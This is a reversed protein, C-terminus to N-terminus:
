WVKWAPKTKQLSFKVIVTVRFFDGDGPEPFVWMNEFYRQYVEENGVAKRYDDNEMEVFQVYNNAKAYMETLRDKSAISEEAIKRFYDSGSTVLIQFDGYLRQSEKEMIGSDLAAIKDDIEKIVATISNKPSKEDLKINPTYVQMLSQLAEINSKYEANLKEIERLTQNIRENGSLIYNREIEEIRANEALVLAKNNDIEQELKKLDDKSAGVELIKKTMNKDRLADFVVVYEPNNGDAATLTKVEKQLPKTNLKAMYIYYGGKRNMRNIIEAEVNSTGQTVESIYRYLTDDYGEKRRLETVSAIYSGNTKEVAVPIIFKMAQDRLQKETDYSSSIKCAFVYLGKYGLGSLNNRIDANIKDISSKKENIRATILEPNGLQVIQQRVSILENRRNILEQQEKDIRANQNWIEMRLEQIQLDSYSITKNKRLLKEVNDTNCYSFSIHIPNDGLLSQQANLTNCVMAIIFGSILLKNM